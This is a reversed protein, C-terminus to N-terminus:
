DVVRLCQCEPSCLWSGNQRSSCDSGPPDCTEGRKWQIVNDGCFGPYNSVCHCDRCIERPFNRCHVDVECNEGPEVIGNGCETPPPPWLSCQCCDDCVWNPNGRAGCISGPPDCTEGQRWNIRGDGCNLPPLDCGRCCIEGGESAWSITPAPIPPMPQEFDFEGDYDTLTMPCCQGVPAGPDCCFTVTFIVGDVPLTLGFPDTTLVKVQGMVNDINKATVSPCVMGVPCTVNIGELCNPDFGIVLDTSAVLIESETTIDCDYCGEWSTPECVVQLITDQALGPSVLFAMSFGIVTAILSSKALKKKKPRKM